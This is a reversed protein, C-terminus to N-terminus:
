KASRILVSNETTDCRFSKHCGLAMVQRYMEKIFYSYKFGMGHRIVVKHEHETEEFRNPTETIKLWIKLIDLFSSFTFEGRLLLSMDRFDDVVSHAIVCLQHETLQNTTNTVLSRPVYYMKAEHADAHWDLHDKIIQNIRTNLSVRKIKSEYQLQSINELPIIITVPIGLYESGHDENGIKTGKKSCNKYRLNSTSAYNFAYYKNNIEDVPYGSM